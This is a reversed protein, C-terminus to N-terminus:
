SIMPLRRDGSDLLFNGGLAATVLVALYGLALTLGFLSILREPSPQRAVEGQATAPAGEHASM